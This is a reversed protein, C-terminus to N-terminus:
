VDDVLDDHMEHYGRRQDGNDKIHDSDEGSLIIQKFDAEPVQDDCRNRDEDRDDKALNLGTEGIGVSGRSVDELVVAGNTPGQCSYQGHESAPTTDGALLAGGIVENPVLLSILRAELESNIEENSYLSIVAMVERDDM